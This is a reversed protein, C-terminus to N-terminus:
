QLRCIADRPEISVQTLVQEIQLAARKRKDYLKDGILKAAQLRIQLHSYLYNCIHIHIQLDAQLNL